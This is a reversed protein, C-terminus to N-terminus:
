YIGRNKKEFMCLFKIIAKYFSNTLTKERNNSLM